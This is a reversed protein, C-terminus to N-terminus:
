NRGRHPPLRLPSRAAGAPTLEVLVLAAAGELHLAPRDRPDPELVVCEGPHIPEGHLYALGDVVYVATTTHAPRPLPRRGALTHATLAHAVRGRRTMVNFDRTPGSVSARAPRDGSFAYPEGGPALHVPPDDAVHLDFGAGTLALITRDVGPYPSFDCDAAFEAVSLRWDFADGAPRALIETTWGADNKWRVRRQAHHPIRLIDADPM